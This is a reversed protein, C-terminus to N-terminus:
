LPERAHAWSPVDCTAARAGQSGRRGAAPEGARLGARRRELVSDLDHRLRQHVAAPEGAHAQTSAQPQHVEALLGAAPAPRPRDALSATRTCPPTPHEDASSSRPGRRPPADRVALRLRRVGQACERRRVRRDPATARALRRAEHRRQPARRRPLLPAHKVAALQLHAPRPTPPCLAGPAGGGWAPHSPLLGLGRRVAGAGADVGRCSSAHSSFSLTRSKWRKM